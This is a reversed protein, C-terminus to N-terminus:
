RRCSAGHLAMRQRRLVAINNKQLPRADVDPRGRRCVPGSKPGGGFPRAEFNRVTLPVPSLYLAVAKLAPDIGLKKPGVIGTLHVSEPQIGAIEGRCNQVTGTAVGFQVAIKRM